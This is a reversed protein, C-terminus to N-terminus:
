IAHQRVVLVHVNAMAMSAQFGQAQSLTMCPGFPQVNYPGEKALQYRGGENGHAKGMAGAKNLYAM